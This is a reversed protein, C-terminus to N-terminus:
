FIDSGNMTIFIFIHKLVITMYQTESNVEDESVLQCLDQVESVFYYPPHVSIQLFYFIFFYVNFYVSFM